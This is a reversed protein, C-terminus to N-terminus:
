MPVELSQALENMTTKHVFCGDPHIIIVPMYGDGEFFGLIGAGLMEKAWCALTTQIQESFNVLNIEWFKNPYRRLRIWGRYIVEKVIINRAKGELGMPEGFFHYYKKIDNKTWGFLLPNTIIKNVHSLGVPITKGDPSIWFAAKQTTKPM